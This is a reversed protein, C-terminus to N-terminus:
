KFQFLGCAKDNQNSFQENNKLDERVNDNDDNDNDNDVFPEEGNECALFDFNSLVSEENLQASEM